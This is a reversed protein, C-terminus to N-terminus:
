NTTIDKGKKFISTIADAIGPIIGEDGNKILVIDEDRRRATEADNSAKKQKLDTRKPDSKKKSGTGGKLQGVPPMLGNSHKPTSNNAIAKQKSRLQKPKVSYESM